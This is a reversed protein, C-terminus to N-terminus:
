WQSGRCTLMRPDSDQRFWSRTFPAGESLRTHSGLLQKVAGTGWSKRAGWNREWLGKETPTPAQEPKLEKKMGSYGASGRGGVEPGAGLAGGGPLRGEHGAVSLEEGATVSQVGAKAGGM